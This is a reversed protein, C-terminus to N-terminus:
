RVAVTAVSTMNAVCHGTNSKGGSNSKGREGRSDRSARQALM